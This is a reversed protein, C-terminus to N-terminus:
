IGVKRVLEDFRPDNRLNDFAPEVKLTTILWVHNEFAKSLEAFAADKDGQLAHLRAIDFSSTGDESAERRVAMWGGTDYAKQYGDLKDKRPSRAERKLFYEFAKAYDRQTEYARTMWGFPQMFRDDIDIAQQYQAIAEDYRRAYYLVRGRHFMYVVAGPDIARAADLERLAEDFKGQDILHLGYLWHANDNEPDLELARLYDAEAAVFDWDYLSSINARSIYAESLSPDLELARKVFARAKDIEASREGFNAPVFIQAMRAYAMAFNPDLAIAQEFHEVAKRYADANRLMTFNKGQLYLRYAEENDTGRRAVDRRTDTKNFRAALDKAITDAVTDQLTFLSGEATEVKITDEIAGTEVRVLQATIRIMGNSVQYNTEIVLDVNLARGAAVADQDLASYNRVASLPRAAFGTISNLRTILSEAVGTEYAGNRSSEDIPKLPLVAFHTVRRPDASRSTSLFSAAVIVLGVLGILGLTIAIPRQQFWPEAEPDMTPRAPPISDSREVNADTPAKLEATFRYGRRRLTEIYPEGNPTNGLEKRLFHINQILNAEEVATDGWLRNMLVEKSVIEGNKEVLALLTEVQKPTLPVEEADRYLMLHEADLRFNHFEYNLHVSPNVLDLNIQPEELTLGLSM